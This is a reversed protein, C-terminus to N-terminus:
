PITSSIKDCGERARQVGQTTVFYKALMNPREWAPLPEERRLYRLFQNTVQAFHAEHGVRYSDPISLRLEGGREEVGIGPYSVQLAAVKRELAAAVGREDEVRNPVVYLEPRYNEAAGQRVEVCSRSGRCVALHTDGGGAAAQLDWRVDLRVHVGRVTYSVLNNCFYALRGDTVNPAVVDPFGPEGTIEQFDALRLMTPWRRGSLVAIGSRHDVAQGPFLMWAVLDVLHTGVDTLGEGLQHIDFFWPPRRLPVGAVHKLLFHVSDMFVGPDDVSGALPEGFM